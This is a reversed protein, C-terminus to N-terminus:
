PVPRSFWRLPLEVTPEFGVEEAMRGSKAPLYLQKPAGNIDAGGVAWCPLFARALGNILSDHVGLRAYIIEPTRIGPLLQAAPAATINDTMDGLPACACPLRGALINMMAFLPTVTM